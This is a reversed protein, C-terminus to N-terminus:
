GGYSARVVNPNTIDRSQDTLQANILVRMHAENGGIM